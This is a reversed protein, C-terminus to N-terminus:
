ALLSSRQQWRGPFVGPPGKLRNTTQNTCLRLSSLEGCGRPSNPPRSPRPRPPLLCQDRVWAASTSFVWPLVTRLAVEFSTDPAVFESPSFLGSTSIATQTPLSIHKRFRHYVSKAAHISLPVGRRLAPDFQNPTSSSRSTNTDPRRLNQRQPFPLGGRSARIPHQVPDLAACATIPHWDVALPFLGRHRPVAALSSIRRLTHPQTFCIAEAARAFRTLSTNPHTPDFRSVHDVGTRYRPAIFGCAGHPALRRPPSFGRPRFM